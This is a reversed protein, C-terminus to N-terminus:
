YHSTSTFWIETALTNIFYKSCREVQYLDWGPRKGSSEWAHFVLAKELAKGKRKDERGAQTAWWSTEPPALAEQLLHQIVKATCPGRSGKNDTCCHGPQCCSPAWRLPAATWDFHQKKWKLLHKPTNQNRYSNCLQKEKEMVAGPWTGVAQGRGEKHSTLSWNKDYRDFIYSCNYGKKLLPLKPVLLCVGFGRQEQRKWTKERWM